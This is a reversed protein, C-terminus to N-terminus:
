NKSFYKIKIKYDLPILNTFTIQNNDITYDDGERAIAGNISVFIIYDISNVTNYINTGGVFEESYIDDKLKEALVRQRDTDYGVYTIYVQYNRPIQRTFLVVSNIINYDSGEHQIVGNVDVYLEETITKQPTYSMTLGNSVFSERNFVPSVQESYFKDSLEAYGVYRVTIEYGSVVPESFTINYMNHIYNVGYKQSLGNVDLSIIYTPLGSLTITDNVGDGVFTDVRFTGSNYTLDPLLLDLSQQKNILNLSFINSTTLDYAVKNKHSAGVFRQGNPTITVVDMESDITTVDVSFVQQATNVSSGSILYEDFVRDGNDLQRSAFIKNNDSQTKVSLIESSQLLTNIGSYFITTIDWNVALNYEYVRKSVAEAYYMVSGNTNFDISLPLTGHVWVNSGRVYSMTDINWPITLEWEWIDGNRLLGYFRTGDPKFYGDLLSTDLDIVTKSRIFTRDSTINYPESLQIQNIGIDFIEFANIGINDFLVDYLKGYVQERNQTFFNSGLDIERGSVLPLTYDRFEVSYQEPTGVTVTYENREIEDLSIREELSFMISVIPPDQLQRIRSIQSIRTSLSQFNYIYDIEFQNLRQTLSADILPVRSNLSNFQQVRNSNETSIRGGISLRASEFISVQTSLQTINVNDRNVLSLISSQRQEINTSVLINFLNIDSVNSFEITSIRTELEDKYTQFFDDYNSIRNDISVDNLVRQSEETNVDSILSTQNNLITILEQQNGVIVSAIENLTDLTSPAGNVITEITSQILTHRESILTDIDSSVLSDLVNNDQVMLSEEIEIRSILSAFDNTVFNEERSIRGELSLDKSIVGSILSEIQQERITEANSIRVILNETFGSTNNILDVISNDTSIRISTEDSINNTLNPYLLTNENTYAVIQNFKDAVYVAINNFTTNSM